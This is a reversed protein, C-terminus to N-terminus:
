SLLPLIVLNKIDSHGTLNDVDTNFRHDNKGLPVVQIEKKERAIGTIGIKSPVQITNGTYLGGEM